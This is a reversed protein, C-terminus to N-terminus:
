SAPADAILAYRARHELWGVGFPEHLRIAWEVDRLRRIRANRWGAEYVAEVLPTPSSLRALPLQSVIEEPYPSHHDPPSGLLRRAVEAGLEGARRLLGESGWVGEFLVLRGEPAAERWATLADVPNPITWLVHREMVADFPGPPPETASGVVFEIKLGREEAKRRAERLMGSSLDLATVRYGLEAALVSLAGTGAGVDLVRPGAPPLADALAARWAAAEVPDSVAHTKANDYSRSDRDWWERILDHVDPM